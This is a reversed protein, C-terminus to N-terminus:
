GDPRTEVVVGYSVTEVRRPLHKNREATLRLLALRRNLRCPSGEFQDPKTQQERGLSSILFVVRDPESTRRM